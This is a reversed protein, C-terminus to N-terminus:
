HDSVRAGHEELHDGAALETQRLLVVVLDADQAVADPRADHAAVHREGPGARIVSRKKLRHAM